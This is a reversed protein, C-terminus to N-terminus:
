YLRNRRPAASATVAFIEDDVEFELRITVSSTCDMGQWDVGLEYIAVFSRVSVKDDGGFLTQTTTNGNVTRRYLLARNASDYEYEIQQLGSGDDPPAITITTTGAYQDVAAATRIDRTIRDLVFRAAQTTSAVQDNAAQSMLSGHVAAAVAALLMAALAIGVLLEVLTFAKKRRCTM